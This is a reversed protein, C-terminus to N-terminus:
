EEKPKEGELIRICLDSGLPTYNYLGYYQNKQKSLVQSHYITVSNDPTGEPAIFDIRYQGGAVLGMGDLEVREWGRNKFTSVDFRKEGLKEETEQDYIVAILEGTNKRDYDYAYFELYKADDTKVTFVESLWSEPTIGPLHGSLVMSSFTCYPPMVALLLCVLVPWLYIGLGVTWRFRIWGTLHSSKEKVDRILFKPFSVVSLLMMM